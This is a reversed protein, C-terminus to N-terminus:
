SFRTLTDIRSEVIPKSGIEMADWWVHEYAEEFSSPEELKESSHVLAV